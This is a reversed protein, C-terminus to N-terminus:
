KERELLMTDAEAYCWAARESRTSFQTPIAPSQMAAIALADRLTMGGEGYNIEGSPYAFAPFPYAPGGTPKTM